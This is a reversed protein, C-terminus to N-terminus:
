VKSVKVFITDNVTFNAKLQRPRVFYKVLEFFHNDTTPGLYERKVEGLDSVHTFTEREVKSLNQNVLTVCM